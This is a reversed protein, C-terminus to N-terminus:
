YFLEPITIKGDGTCIEGRMAVAMGQKFKLLFCLLFAWLDSPLLCFVSSLTLMTSLPSLFGSTLTRLDFTQPKHRM